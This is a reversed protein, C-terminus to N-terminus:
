PAVTFGERQAAAALRDDFCVFDLAGPDDGAALIAAALQLADGARLPHSRLLRISIDRVRASPQVERLVPELAQLRAISENVGAMSILGERHRRALASVCEVPAAWWVLMESDEDFLARSKASAAEEVLLPM